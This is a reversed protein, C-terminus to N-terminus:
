VDRQGGRNFNKVSFPSIPFINLLFIRLFNKLNKKIKDQDMNHFSDRVVKALKRTSRLVNIFACKSVSHCITIFSFNRLFNKLNNRIKLTLKTYTEHAMM